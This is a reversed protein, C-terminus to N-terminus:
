VIGNVTQPKTCFLIESCIWDCVPACCVIYPVCDLERDRMQKHLHAPKSSLSLSCSSSSSVFYALSPFLLSLYDFLLSLSIFSVSVCVSLSLSLYLSLPLYLKGECKLGQKLIGFM